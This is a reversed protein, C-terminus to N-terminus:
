SQSSWNCSRLSFKPNAVPTSSSFNQKGLSREGRGVLPISLSNLAADGDSLASAMGEGEWSRETEWLKFSLFRLQFTATSLAWILFFFLFSTLKFKLWLSLPILFGVQKIKVCILKINIELEWEVLLWTTQQLVLTLPLTDARWHWGDVHTVLQSM